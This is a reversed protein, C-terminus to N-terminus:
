SGSKTKLAPKREPNGSKEQFLMGFIYWIVM